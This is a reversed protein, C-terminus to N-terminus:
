IYIIILKHIKQTLYLVCRIEIFERPNGNGGCLWALPAVMEQMETWAIGRLRKETEKNRTIPVTFYALEPQQLGEIRYEMTLTIPSRTPVICSIRRHSFDCFLFSLLHSVCM